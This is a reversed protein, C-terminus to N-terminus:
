KKSTVTPGCLMLEYSYSLLFDCEDTSGQINMVSSRLSLSFWLRFFGKTWPNLSQVAILNSGFPRPEFRIWACHQSNQLRARKQVFVLKRDVQYQFNRTGSSGRILSLWAEKDSKIAMDDSMQVILDSAEQPNLSVNLELKEQGAKMSSADLQWDVIREGL